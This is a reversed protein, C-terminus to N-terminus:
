LLCVFLSMVTCSSQLLVSNTFGKCATNIRLKGAGQLATGVPESKDCLTTVTDSLTACYIWGDNMLQFWM